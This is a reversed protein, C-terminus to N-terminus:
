QNKIFLETLVTLISVLNFIIIHIYTALINFSSILFNILVNGGKGYCERSAVARFSITQQWAAGRAPEASPPLAALRYPTPRASPPPVLPPRPRGAARDIRQRSPPRAAPTPPVSSWHIVAITGPISSLVGFYIFINKSITFYTTEFM